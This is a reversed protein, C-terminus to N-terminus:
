QLNKKSKNISWLTCSRKSKKSSMVQLATITKPRNEQSLGKHTTQGKRQFSHHRFISNEQPSHEETFKITPHHNNIM